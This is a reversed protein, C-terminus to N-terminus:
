PSHRLRRRTHPGPHNSPVTRTSQATMRELNHPSYCKTAGASDFAKALDATLAHPPTRTLSPTTPDSVGDSLYEATKSRRFAVRILICRAVTVVQRRSVQVSGEAACLQLHFLPLVQRVLRTAMTTM